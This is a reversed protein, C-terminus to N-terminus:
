IDRFLIDKSERKKKNRAQNSRSKWIIKANVARLDCSLLNGMGESKWNYCGHTLCFGTYKRGNGSGNLVVCSYLQAM